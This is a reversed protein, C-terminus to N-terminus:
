AEVKKATKNAVKAAKTFKKIVRDRKLKSIHDIFLVGNTHDIEHQLCTALLGKAEIEHENGDLDLYKVKVERRGSSRRTINRSRCAAKRTPRNRKRRGPSRRISSCRRSTSTTRRRCTWPSSASPSASRSRRSGSAPRTTCPRSCTMSWSASAPMSASSRSPTSGCGSTPSNSSKACLWTDAIYPTCLRATLGRRRNRPVPALATLHTREENEGRGPSDRLVCGM